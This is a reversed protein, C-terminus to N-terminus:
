ESSFPSPRTGNNELYFKGAFFLGPTLEYGNLSWKTAGSENDRDSERRLLQQLAEPNKGIAPRIQKRKTPGM